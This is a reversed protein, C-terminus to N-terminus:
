RLSNGREIGVAEKTREASWRRYVTAVEVIETTQDSRRSNSLCTERAWSVNATHSPADDPGEHSGGEVM